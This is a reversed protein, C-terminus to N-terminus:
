SPGRQFVSQTIQDGTIVPPDPPYPTIIARPQETMLDDADEADAPTLSEGTTVPGGFSDGVQSVTDTASVLNVRPLENSSPSM